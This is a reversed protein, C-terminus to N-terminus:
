KKISNLTNNILDNLMEVVPADPRMYEPHGQIALCKPAGEKHYLVIEPEGNELIRAYDIYDGEYYHPSRFESSVFLVDYNEKKLNYPYQMQHHTSTIEYEVENNTIGHTGYLAHNRCNQVLKGGNM